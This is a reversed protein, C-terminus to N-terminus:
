LFSSSQTGFHSYWKANGGSIFSHEQQEADEGTNSTTPTRSKPWELLHATIDQKWRWNESFMQQPADKWRKMYTNVM